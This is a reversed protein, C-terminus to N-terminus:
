DNITKSVITSPNLRGSVFIWEGNVKAIVLDKIKFDDEDDEGEITCKLTVEYAEKVKVDEYAEILKEHEKELKKQDKSSVDDEDCLYDISDMISDEMDVYADYSDELDDALDDLDDEDLKEAKSIEYKIKYDDGFEDELQEIYNEWQEDDKDFIEMSLANYERMEKIQTYEQYPLDGETKENILKISEKIAKKYGGGSLLSSIGVVAAVAVVGIGIFLTKKDNNTNNNANNITNNEM